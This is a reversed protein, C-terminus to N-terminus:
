FSIEIRSISNKNNKNEAIYNIYMQPIYTIKRKSEESKLNIKVGDAWEVIFDFKLEKEFDYGLFNLDSGIKM